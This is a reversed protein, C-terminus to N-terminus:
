ILSQFCDCYDAWLNNGKDPGILVSVCAILNKLRDFLLPCFYKLIASTLCSLHTAIEVRGAFVHVQGKFTYVIFFM